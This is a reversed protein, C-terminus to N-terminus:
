KRAIDVEYRIAGRAVKQRIRDVTGVTPSWTLVESFEECSLREQLLQVRRVGSFQVNEQPSNEFNRLVHCYFKRDCNRSSFRGWGVGHLIQNNPIQPIKSMNGSSVLQTCMQYCKAPWIDINRQSVVFKCQPPNITHSSTM